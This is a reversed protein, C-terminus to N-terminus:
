PLPVHAHDKFICTTASTEPRAREVEEVGDTHAEAFRFIRLPVADDVDRRVELEQRIQVAVCLLLHPHVFEQLAHM